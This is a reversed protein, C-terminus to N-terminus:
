RSHKDRRLGFLPSPHQVIAAIFDQASFVEFNRKTNAHRRSRYIVTGTEDNYTMKKESFPNRIIYQAVRELGEDDGRRIPKGNHVSFGSHKWSLLKRAMELALLGEEVLMKIVRVRFIQELPRTSLRPAVRVGSGANAPVTCPLSRVHWM